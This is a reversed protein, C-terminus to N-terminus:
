NSLEKRLLDILIPDSPRPANANILEGTKSFLLYRPITTIKYKNSFFTSDFNPFLFNDKHSILNDKVMALKWNNFNDDRSLFVFRIPKNAFSEVLKLESKMESRCPICWSAWIDLYVLNGKYGKMIDSFSLQTSNATLVSDEGTRKSNVSQSNKIQEIYDVLISNQSKAIFTRICTANSNPNKLLEAKTILFLMEELAPHGNFELTAIKYLSDANDKKNEGKATKFYRYLLSNFPLRNISVNSNSKLWLYNSDIKRRFSQPIIVKTNLGLYSLQKSKYQIELINHLSKRISDSCGNLSCFDDLLKQETSFRKKFENNVREFNVGKEKATPKTSTIIHFYSNGASENIFRFADLSPRDFNGKSVGRLIKNGIKDVSITLSDGPKVFYLTQYTNTEILCLEREVELTYSSKPPISFVILDYVSNIYGLNVPLNSINILAVSDIKIVQSIVEESIQTTNSNKCFVSFTLLSLFVPVTLPKM